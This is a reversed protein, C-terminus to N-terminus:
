SLRRGVSFVVGVGLIFIAGELRTSWVHLADFAVRRPDSLAARDIAGMGHRLGEMRAFVYFQSVCTLALMVAVLVNRVALPRFAGESLRATILSAALFVVGCVLGIGHLVPLLRAIVQGALDRTPVIAFVNPAMVAFFFIGGVWLVLALVMLFRLVTM